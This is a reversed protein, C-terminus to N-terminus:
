MRETCISACHIEHAKIQLVKYKNNLCESARLNNNNNNHISWDNMSNKNKKVNFKISWVCTRLNEITTSDRNQNRKQQKCPFTARQEAKENAQATSTNSTKKLFFNTKRESEESTILPCQDLLASNGSVLRLMMRLSNRVLDFIFSM